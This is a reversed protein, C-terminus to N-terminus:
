STVSINRVSCLDSIADRGKDHKSQNLVGTTINFEHQLRIPRVSNPQMSKIPKQSTVRSKLHINAIQVLLWPVTTLKEDRM